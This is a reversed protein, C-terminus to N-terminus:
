VAETSAALSVSAGVASTDARGDGLAGVRSDARRSGAEELRAGVTETTAALAIGTTLLLRDAGGSHVLSRIGSDARGASAEELRAAITEAAATLGVGAALLLGDARGSNGLSRVRSDARGAGTEELGAGVAEAAAALAIGAAVGPAGVVLGTGVLRGLAELDLGARRASTSRTGAEELDTGVAELAAALLVGAAGLARDAGLLLHLNVFVYKSELIYLAHYLVAICKNVTMQIHTKPVNRLMASQKANSQNM